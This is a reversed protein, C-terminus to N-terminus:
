SFASPAAMGILATLMRPGYARGMDFLRAKLARASGGTGDLVSVQCCPM